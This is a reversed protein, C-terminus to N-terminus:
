VLEKCMLQLEINLEKYNIPPGIISFYRDKFKIRMNPTIGTRYRMGIKHTLESNITEAAFYQKGVLPEVSARVGIAVDIWQEVPQGFTDQTNILKQITIKHRLKGPNM